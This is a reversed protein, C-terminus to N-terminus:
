PAEELLTSDIPTFVHSASQVLTEGALRMTMEGDTGQLVISTGHLHWSGSSLSDCGGTLTYHGGADLLLRDGDADYLGVFRVLAAGESRPSPATQPVGSGQLRVRAVPTEVPAPGAPAAPLLFEPAVETIGAPVKLFSGREFLDPGDVQWTGDARRIVQADVSEALDHVAKDAGKVLLRDPAIDIGVVLREARGSAADVWTLTGPVTRLPHSGHPGHVTLETAEGLALPLLPAGRWGALEVSVANTQTDEHLLVFGDQSSAGGCAVAPLVLAVISLTNRNQM